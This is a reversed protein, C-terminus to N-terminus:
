PALAEKVETIFEPTSLEEWTTGCPPWAYVPLTPYSVGEGLNSLQARALASDAANAVFLMPESTILTQIIPGELPRNDLNFPPGLVDISRQMEGKLPEIVEVTLISVLYSQEVRKVSRARGILLYDAAVISEASSSEYVVCAFTPASSMALMIAILKQRVGRV